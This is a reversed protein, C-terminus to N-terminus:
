TVGLNCGLGYPKSNATQLSNTPLDTETTWWFSRCTMLSVTLRVKVSENKWILYAEHMWGKWEEKDRGKRRMTKKRISSGLTTQEGGKLNPRNKAGRTGSQPSAHFHPSHTNVSEPLSLTFPSQCPATTKINGHHCPVSVSLYSIFPFLYM